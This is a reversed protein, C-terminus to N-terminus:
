DEAFMSVYSSPIVVVLKGDNLFFTWEQEEEDEDELTVSVEKFMPLIESTKTSGVETVVLSSGIYSSYMATMEDVDDKADDIDDDTVKKLYKEFASATLDEEADDLLNMAAFAEYDTNDKLFKEIKSESELAKGFDKALTDIDSGKSDKSDKKDKKDEKSDEDEDDPEEEDPEVQETENKSKKNDDDDKNKDIFYFVTLGGLAAVLVIIIIILAVTSKKM